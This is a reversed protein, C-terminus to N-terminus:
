QIYFPVEKLLFGKLIRLNGLVTALISRGKTVKDVMKKM